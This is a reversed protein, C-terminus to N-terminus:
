GRRRIGFLDPHRRHITVHWLGQASVHHSVHSTTQVPRAQIPRRGRFDPETEPGHTSGIVWPQNLIIRNPLLISDLGVTRVRGPCRGPFITSITFRLHIRPRYCRYNRGLTSTQTYQPRQQAAHFGSLWPLAPPTEASRPPELSAM